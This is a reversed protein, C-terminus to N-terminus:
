LPAGIVEAKPRAEKGEVLHCGCSRRRARAIEQVNVLKRLNNCVGARIINCEAENMRLSDDGLNEGASPAQGSGGAKGKM